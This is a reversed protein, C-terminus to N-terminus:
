RARLLYPVGRIGLRDGIELNRTIATTDCDSATDDPTQGNLMWNKWAAAPNRACWILRSKVLSDDSLIPLLFTYLTINDLHSLKKDLEACFPCYPDEFTVLIQSGDGHVQKIAQQLPLNAIDIEGEAYEELLAAVTAPETRLNLFPLLALASLIVIITLCGTKMPNGTKSLTM